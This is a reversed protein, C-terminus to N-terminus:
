IFLVRTVYKLICNMYCIKWWSCFYWSIQSSLLDFFEDKKEYNMTSYKKFFWLFGFFHASLLFVCLFCVSRNREEIAFISRFNVLSEIMLQMTSLKNTSTVRFYLQSLRLINWRWFFSRFDSDSSKESSTPSFNLTLSKACKNSSSVLTFLGESILGGKRIYM